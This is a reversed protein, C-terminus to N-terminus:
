WVRLREEKKIYMGDEKTIDYAFYFQDTASLVGNVRIEAPSHVDEFLSDVADTDYSLTGWIIGYNKFIKKLEEKNDTMSAIVYLAGTDAINENVTLEGDISYLNMIKYNGFYDTANAKLQEIRKEDELGTWDPNYCGKEDFQIGEEDFAHTMEHAIITGLGGLNTYYDADKDFFPEYFLASPITITNNTTDYVANFTWPTMYWREMNTETEYLALNELVDCSRISICSELLGGCVQSSSHYPKDPYGILFTMKELKLLLKERAECNLQGTSVLVNYYAAKISETLEKVAEMTEPDCYKEAYINGLEWSLEKKVAWVAKEEPSMYYNQNITKFVEQYKEPLYASYDYLLRCIAYDKWVPLSENTLYTNLKKAQEVDYLVLSEANEIGFATCMAPVNMNTFLQQLEEMTYPNYGDSIDMQRIDSTSEAIDLMMSVIEYARKEYGEKGEVELISAMLLQLNEACDATDVLEERSYFLDMQNLYLIQKSSEYYDQSVSPYCLVTCGYERYLFGCAAVFSDIDEAQEVADIGKKLPKIGEQERAGSDLYMLYFDRIKQSDSGMAFDECSNGIELIEESLLMDVEETVISAHSYEGINGPIDSNWLFDFNTYGYFDDELRIGASECTYDMDKYTDVTSIEEESTCSCLMLGCLIFLFVSLTEGAKVNMANM